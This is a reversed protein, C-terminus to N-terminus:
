WWCVFGVVKSLTSSKARFAKNLNEVCSECLLQQSFDWFFGDIKELSWETKLIVM